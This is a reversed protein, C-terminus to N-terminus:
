DLHSSEHQKQGKEPNKQHGGSRAGAGLRVLTATVAVLRALPATLVSLTAPLPLRIAPVAVGVVLVVLGLHVARRTVELVVALAAPLVVKLVVGSKRRRRRRGDQGRRRTARCKRGRRGATQRSRGSAQRSRGATQRGRGCLQRRKEAGEADSPGGRRFEVEEPNVVLKEFPAAKALAAGNM